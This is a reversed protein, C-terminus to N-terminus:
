LLLSDREEKLANYDKLLQEYRDREYLVDYDEASVKSELKDIRKITSEILSNNTQCDQSSKKPATYDELIIEPMTAIDPISGNCDVSSVDTVIEGFDCMNTIPAEDQGEDLGSEEQTSEISLM